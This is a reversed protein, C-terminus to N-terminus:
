NLLVRPCETSPMLSLAIFCDGVGRHDLIRDPDSGVTTMTGYVIHRLLEVAGHGM